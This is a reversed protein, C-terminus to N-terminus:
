SWGAADLAAMEVADRKGVPACGEVVGVRCFGCVGEGYTGARSPDRPFERRCRPCHSVQDDRRALWESKAM